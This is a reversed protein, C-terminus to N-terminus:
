SVRNGDVWMAQVNEEGTDLVLREALTTTDKAQTNVVLLDARKDKKLSGIQQEMLLCKAADLTVKKLLDEYSFAVGNKKLHTTTARLEEWLSIGGGWPSGLTALATTIGAAFTKQFPIEGLKLRYFAQPALLIKAHAQELIALDTAGLHLCGMLILNPKLFDIERLYQIPTMQHPPPIEKWGAEPFLHDTIDGKSAYFFEMESFTEAVHLHVPLHYEDAHQALIKLLNKSLTFASFPALGPTIRKLEHEAIKEINSIASEFDHAAKQKNLNM